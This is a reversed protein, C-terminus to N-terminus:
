PRYRSLLSKNEKSLKDVGIFARLEDEFAMGKEVVEDSNSIFSKGPMEKYIKSYYYHYETVLKVIKDPFLLFCEDLKKYFELEKGAIIRKSEIINASEKSEYAKQLDDFFGDFDYFFKKVEILFSLQRDYLKERLANRRNKISIYLAMGSILIALINIIITNGM